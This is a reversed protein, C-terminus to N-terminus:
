IKKLGLWYAIEFGMPWTNEIFLTSGLAFRIKGKLHLIGYRLGIPLVNIYEPLYSADNNPYNYDQFTRFARVGNYYTLQMLGYSASIRTQAITSMMGNGGISDRLFRGYRTDALATAQPAATIPDSGQSRLSLMYSKYLKNWKDQQEPYFRTRYLTDKEQYYEWVTKYGPYAPLSGLADHLNHHTPIGPNGLDTESRIWYRHTSDFAGGNSRQVKTMDDYPEYRYSPYFGISEKQIIGKVIQPLIGEKGAYDIILSDLQYTSDIGDGLAPGVVTPHTTGLFGPRKVEIVLEGTNGQYNASLRVKYISDEECYRGILRILGNQLNNMIPEVTDQQIEGHKKDWYVGMKKGSKAADAIVVSVPNNGWIDTSVAGTPLTPSTTEHITLRGNDNTAYYYKAEGLLIDAGKVIITDEFVRTPDSMMRACIRVPVPKGPSKGMALFKINGAVADYYRVSDMPSDLTDIRTGRDYIFKAYQASDVEITMLSDDIQPYYRSLNGNPYIYLMTSSGLNLTDDNQYVTFSMPTLDIGCLESEQLEGEFYIYCKDGYEDRKAFQVDMGAGAKAPQTCNDYSFKLTDGKLIYPIRIPLYPDQSYSFYSIYSVKTYGNCKDYATEIRPERYNIYDALDFVVTTDRISDRFAVTFDGEPPAGNKAAVLVWALYTGSRNVVYSTPPLTTSNITNKGNNKVTNGSGIIVREKIVVQSSSDITILVLLLLSSGFQIVAKITRM